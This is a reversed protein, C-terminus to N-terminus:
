FPYIKGINESTGYHCTRTADKAFRLKSLLTKFKNYCMREDKKGVVMKAAM